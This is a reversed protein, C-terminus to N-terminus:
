CRKLKRSNSRFGKFTSNGSHETVFLIWATRQDDIRVYVKGNESALAWKESLTITDNADATLQGTRYAELVDERASNPKIAYRNVIGMLMVSAVISTLLVIIIRPFRTMNPKASIRKKEMTPLQDFNTAPRHINKQFTMVM